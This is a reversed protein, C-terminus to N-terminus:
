RSAGAVVSAIMAAGLTGVTGNGVVSTLFGVRGSNRWRLAAGLAVLTMQWAFSAVAVGAVFVVVGLTSSAAASLGAAIAAFYLLTAPNVATLGFFLALRRWGSGTSSPESGSSQVVDAKPRRRIARVLGVVALAILACGGAVGPWPAVEAIIPALVSGATLAAVCYLADVSAVAAAAPIGRRVGRAAGEQVVLVGIAGLPVALALGAVIGAGFLTVYDMDAVM